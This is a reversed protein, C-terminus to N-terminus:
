TTPISYLEPLEYNQMTTSPFFDLHPRLPLTGPLCFSLKMDPTATPVSSFDTEEIEGLNSPLIQSKLNV